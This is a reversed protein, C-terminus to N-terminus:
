INFRKTPYPHLLPRRHIPVRISWSPENVARTYLTTTYEAEHLIYGAHVLLNNLCCAFSWWNEINSNYFNFISSMRTPEYFISYSRGDCKFDCFQPNHLSPSEFIQDTTVQLLTLRQLDMLLTTVMVLFPKIIILTSNFSFKIHEQEWSRM